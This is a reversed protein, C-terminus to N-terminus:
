EKEKKSNRNFIMWKSFIYNLIVVLVNSLIKMTLENLNLIDVSLYMIGLDLLGTFLRCGFFGMCEYFLGRIGGCKSEFVFCKNTVYAFLVGAFWAIVTSLSVSAEFKRCVFYMAINVATTLAGFVLYLIQEKHRKILRFM